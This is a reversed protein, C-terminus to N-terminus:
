GLAGGSPGEDAFRGRLCELVERALVEAAEANEWTLFLRGGIYYAVGKDEIMGGLGEDVSPTLRVRGQGLVYDDLHEYINRLLLPDPVENEFASVAASVCRAENGTLTERLARCMLYIGRLAGLLFQVETRLASIERLDSEALARIRREFEGPPLPPGFLEAEMSEEIVARRSRVVNMAERVRATQTLTALRYRWLENTLAAVPDFDEPKKIMGDQGGSEESVQANASGTGDRTSKTSAGADAEGTVDATHSDSSQRWDCSPM